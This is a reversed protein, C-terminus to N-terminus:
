FTYKFIISFLRQVKGWDKDKFGLKTKKVADKVWFSEYNRNSFFPPDLYILDVSESPIRKLMVDKCDGYYITNVSLKIPENM